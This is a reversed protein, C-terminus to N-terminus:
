QLENHTHITIGKMGVFGELSYVRLMCSIMFPNAYRSALHWAGHPRSVQFWRGAGSDPPHNHSSFSILPLPPLPHYYTGDQHSHISITSPRNNMTM